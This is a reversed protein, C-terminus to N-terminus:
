RLKYEDMRKLAIEKERVPTKATKKLFAHLLVFKRGTYAFYFIRYYDSSHHVRLEWLGSKTIKRVHPPRLTLGYRQLLEIVHVIRIQASSSQAHIFDNVPEKGRDDRYFVIHWDM